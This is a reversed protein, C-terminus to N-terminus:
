LSPGTKKRSLDALLTRKIEATRKKADQVSSGTFLRERALSYYHLCKAYYDDLESENEAFEMLRRYVFAKDYLCLGTFKAKMLFAHQHIRLAEMVDSRDGDVALYYSLSALVSEALHRKDSELNSMFWDLSDNSSDPRGLLSLVEFCRGIVWSRSYDSHWGSGAQTGVAFAALYLFRPDTSETMRFSELASSVIDSVMEATEDGKKSERRLLVRLKAQVKILRLELALPVDKIGLLRESDDIVEKTNGLALLLVLMTLRREIGKDSTDAVDLQKGWFNDKSGSIIACKSALNMLSSYFNRATVNDYRGDYLIAEVEEALAGVANALEPTQFHVRFPFMIFNIFYKRFARDAIRADSRSGGELRSRRSYVDSLNRWNLFENTLLVKVRVIQEVIEPRRFDSAAELVSTILDAYRSLEGQAVAQPGSYTEKRLLDINGMQYSDMFERSSQTMHLSQLTERLGQVSQMSAELIDFDDSYRSVGFLRINSITDRTKKAIFEELMKMDKTASEIIKAPIADNPNCDCYRLYFRFV